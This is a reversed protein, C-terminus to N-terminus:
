RAQVGHRFRFRRRGIPRRRAPGRSREHGSCWRGRARARSGPRECGVPSCPAPSAPRHAGSRAAPQASRPSSGRGHREAVEGAHVFLLAAKEAGPEGGMQWSGKGAEAEGFHIGEGLRSEDDTEAADGLVRGPHRHLSRAPTGEPVAVGQHRGERVRHPPAESSARRANSRACGSRAVRRPARLASERRSCVPAPRSRSLGSSRARKGTM